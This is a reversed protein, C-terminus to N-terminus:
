GEAKFEPTILRHNSKQLGRTRGLLNNEAAHQQHNARGHYNRQDRPADTVADAQTPGPLTDHGFHRALRNSRELHLALGPLHQALLKGAAASLGLHQKGIKGLTGRLGQDAPFGQDGFGPPQTAV